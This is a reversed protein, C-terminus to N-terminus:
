AHSGLYHWRIRAHCERVVTRQRTEQPCGNAGGNAAHSRFETRPGLEPSVLDTKLVWTYVM